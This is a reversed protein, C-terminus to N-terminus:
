KGLSSLQHDALAQESLFLKGEDTMQVINEKILMELIQPSYDRMVEFYLLPKERIGIEDLYKATEPSFAQAKRFMILLKKVTRKFTLRMFLTGFVWLLIFAIIIIIVVKVSESM